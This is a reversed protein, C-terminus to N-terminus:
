LDACSPENGAREKKKVEVVVVFLLLMSAAGNNVNVQSSWKKFINPCLLPPCYSLKSDVLHSTFVDSDSSLHYPQM